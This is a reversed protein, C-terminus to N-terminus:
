IRAEDTGTLTFTDGTVTNIWTDGPKAGVILEPPDSPGSFTASIASADGPDGKPGPPGPKGDIGAPGMPGISPFLIADAALYAPAHGNDTVAM